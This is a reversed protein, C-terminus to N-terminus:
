DWWFFWNRSGVLTKALNNVTGIGQHVSDPCYVFQEWALERAQELSSPPREASFGVIDVLVSTIVAGYRDFWCKCFAVQVEPSPCGIM